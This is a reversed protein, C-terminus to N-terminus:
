KPDRPRVVYMGGWEKNPFLDLEPTQVLFVVDNRGGYQPPIQYLKMNWGMSGFRKIKITDGGPMHLNFFYYGAS